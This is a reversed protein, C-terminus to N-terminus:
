IYEPLGDSVKALLNTGGKENPFDETLYTGLFYYEPIQSLVKSNSEGELVHNCNPIEHSKVVRSNSSHKKLYKLTDPAIITDESGIVMFLEQRYEPLNKEIEKRIKPSNIFPNIVLVKTIEPYEWAISLVSAGGVSFGMLWIEPTKTGCIKLSNELCFNIIVRATLVYEQPRDNPIRVFSATNHEQILCALNFYKDMYGESTGGAGPINIIIKGTKTPHYTVQIDWWEQLFLKEVKFNTNM